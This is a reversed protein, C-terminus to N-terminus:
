LTQVLHENICRLGDMVVIVSCSEFTIAAIKSMQAFEKAAILLLMTIVNVVLVAADIVCGSACRMVVTIAVIEGVIASIETRTSLVVGAVAVGASVLCPASSRSSSQSQKGTLNGRNASTDVLKESSLSILVWLITTSFRQGIVVV